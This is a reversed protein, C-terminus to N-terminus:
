QNSAANSLYEDLPPHLLEASRPDTMNEKTIITAGTDVRKEVTEGQLSRVMTKVGLYGMNVPDQVILAQVDGNKLDAASAETADFGVVKVDGGGRGYERLAQAMTVTVPECPCFIGDVEDGFQQLLNEAKQLATERTPGSYQNESVVEINPYEAIAALFGDERKTTSASGVQYRLVLVDGEGGLLEALHLGGIYGGNFNDTAVFSVYDNSALGSDIIVVPVGSQAANEIPRALANDDLPAVVMGDVSGVTFNEIIEIQEARDNEKLPGQWIVETAVGSANLEREAKVAGAHISKWFEHTLGKPIVAIRLAGSEEKEACGSILLALFSALGLHAFSKKMVALNAGVSAFEINGGRTQRGTPDIKRIAARSRPRARVTKVNHRAEADSGAKTPVGDLRTGEVVAGRAMRRAGVGGVHGRRVDPVRLAGLDLPKAKGLPALALADPSSPDREM